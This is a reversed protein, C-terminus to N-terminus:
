VNVENKGVLEPEFSYAINEAIQKPEKLKDDEMYERLNAEIHSEHHQQELKERAKEANVARANSSM